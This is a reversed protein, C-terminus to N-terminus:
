APRGRGCGKGWNSFFFWRLFVGCICFLPPHSLIVWSFTRIHTVLLALRLDSHSVLCCCCSSPPTKCAKHKCSVLVFVCRTNIVIYSSYSGVWEFTEISFLFQKVPLCLSYFLCQFRSTLKEINEEWWVGGVFCVIRLCSERRFSSIGPLNTYWALDKNLPLLSLPEAPVM